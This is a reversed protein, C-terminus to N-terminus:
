TNATPATMYVIDGNVQVMLIGDIPTESIAISKANPAM